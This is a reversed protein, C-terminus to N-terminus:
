EHEVCFPMVCKLAHIRLKELGPGSKQNSRLLPERVPTFGVVISSHSGRERFKMIQKHDHGRVILPQPPHVFRLGNPIAPLLQASIGAVSPEAVRGVPSHETLEGFVPFLSLGLFHFDLLRDSM